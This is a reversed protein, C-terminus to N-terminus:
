QQCTSEKLGLSSNCLASLREDFCQKCLINNDRKRTSVLIDKTGIPAYWQKRQRASPIDDIAGVPAYWQEWWHASLMGYNM